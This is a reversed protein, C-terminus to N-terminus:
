CIAEDNRRAIVTRRQHHSSPSFSVPYKEALILFLYDAEKEGDEGEV